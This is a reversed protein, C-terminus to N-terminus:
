HWPRASTLRTLTRMLLLEKRRVKERDGARLYPSHWEVYVAQLRRIAGCKILHNLVPIEAGEIDMKMVVCPNPRSPKQPFTSRLFRGLDFTPVRRAQPKLVSHVGNNHSPNLSAGVAAEGNGTGYFLRNGSSTWAARPIVQAPRGRHTLRNRAVQQLAAHCAPNPEILIYRWHRPSFFRSFFLAGQGLNSGCDIFVKEGPAHRLRFSDWWALASARMREWQVALFGAVDPRVPRRNASNM